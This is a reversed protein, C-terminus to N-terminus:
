SLASGLKMAVSMDGDIRLRGQMVAAAPNLDGSMIQRFTDLDASLTVDTQDDGARVGGHDVIISGEDDIIFKASSDFAGSIRASLEEIARDIVDSM